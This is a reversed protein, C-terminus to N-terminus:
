LSKGASLAPKFGPIFDDFLLHVKDSKLSSAGLQHFPLFCSFQHFVGADLPFICGMM